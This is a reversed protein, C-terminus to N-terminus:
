FFLRLHRKGRPSSNPAPSHKQMRYDSNYGSVFSFASLRQDPAFQSSIGSSSSSSGGAPGGPSWPSAPLLCSPSSPPSLTAPPSLAGAPVGVSSGHLEQKM